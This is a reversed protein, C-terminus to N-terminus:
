SYDDTPNAPRQVAIRFLCDSSSANKRNACGPFRSELLTRIVFFVLLIDIKLNRLHVATFLTLASSALSLSVSLYHSCSWHTHQARCLILGNYRRTRFLSFSIFRAIDASTFIHGHLRKAGMHYQASVIFMTFARFQRCGFLGLLLPVFLFTPTM